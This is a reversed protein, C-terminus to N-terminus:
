AARRLTGRQAQPLLRSLLTLSEHSKLTIAADPRDPLSMVQELDNRMATDLASLCRGTPQFSESPLNESLIVEHRDLYLHHYSIARAPGRWAGHGVLHRAPVLVTPEGSVLEVQWGTLAIRHCPSLTLTHSPLGPGFLHAPIVVPRLDPWLATEAQTFRRQSAWLLPVARGDETLIMDGARLTEVPKPGNPTAIATGTAFCMFVPATANIKSLPIAGNPFANMVSLTGSGDSIFFYRQGNSATIVVVTKGRLDIGGINAMKNTTPLTGSFQVTFTLTKGNLILWTDPDALGGNPELRLDGSTGSTFTLLTTPTKSTGSVNLAANNASSSDGRAYFTMTTTM